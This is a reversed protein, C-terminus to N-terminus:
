LSIQIHGAKSEAKKDQTDAIQKQRREEQEKVKQEKAAM